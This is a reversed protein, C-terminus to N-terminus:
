SEYNLCAIRSPHDECDKNWFGISKKRTNSKQSLAIPALGVADGYYASTAELLGHFLVKMM